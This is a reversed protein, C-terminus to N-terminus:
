AEGGALDADPPRSGPSRGEINKYWSLLWAVAVMLVIGTASALVQATVSESVQVM